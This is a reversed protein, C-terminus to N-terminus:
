VKWTFWVVSSDQLFHAFICPTLTKRWLFLLSFFFGYLATLIVGGLGQYIHGLGFALSSLIAILWINKIWLNLKTLLYGRFATEECVAASFSMLIWWLKEALSRPMLFTLDKQPLIGMGRIVFAVGVLVINSIIVFGFGLWLNKFNFQNFGIQKLALKGTERKITLLILLFLLWEIIITPLYIQYTLDQFSLDQPSYDGMFVLSILPWGILLFLVTFYTIRPIPKKEPPTSEVSPYNEDM